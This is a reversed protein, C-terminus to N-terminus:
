FRTVVVELGIDCRSIEAIQCMAIEARLEVFNAWFFLRIRLQFRWEGQTFVFDDVVLLSRIGSALGRLSPFNRFVHYGSRRDCGGRRSEALVLHSGSCHVFDVLYRTGRFRGEFLYTRGGQSVLIQEVCVAIEFGGRCPPEENSHDFSVPLTQPPPFLLSLSSLTTSEGYHIELIVGRLSGLRCGLGNFGGLEGVRGAVFHEKERKHFVGNTSLVSVDAHSGGVARIEWDVM